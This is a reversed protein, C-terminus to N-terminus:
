FSMGLHEIVDSLDALYEYGYKTVKKVTCYDSLFALEIRRGRTSYYGQPEYGKRWEYFKEVLAKLDATPKSDMQFTFGDPSFVEFLQKKEKKM